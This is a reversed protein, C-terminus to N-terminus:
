CTMKVTCYSIIIKIWGYTLTLTFISYTQKLSCTTSGAQLTRATTVFSTM